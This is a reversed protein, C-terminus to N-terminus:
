AQELLVTIEFKTGRHLSIKVKTEGLKRIHGSSISKEPIAYGNKQLEAAIDKETISGFLKGEKARAKLTIRLEQMAKALDLEVQKEQQETLQKKQVEQKAITVAGTTALKALKKALLFNRAYGDSVDKIEGKKGIKKIDQLLIIKM